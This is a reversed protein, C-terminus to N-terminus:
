RLVAGTAGDLIISPRAAGGCPGTLIYDLGSGLARRVALASRAPPHAALNASTSVLPGGWRRCLAAALPHASVRVALTAHDGTLWSPTEIRAPLLWTVPGPWTARIEGMREPDLNLVFPELQAWDAAVLILGKGESRAKLALLRRVAVGDRPDCGLGYVAETPYAVLGGRAIWHAALALRHRASAFPGLGANSGGEAPAAASSTRM